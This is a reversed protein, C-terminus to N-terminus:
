KRQKNIQKKREANINIVIGINLVEDLNITFFCIYLDQFFQELQLM